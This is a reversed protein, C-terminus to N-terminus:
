VSIPVNVSVVQSHFFQTICEVIRIVDHPQLGVWLPLRLLCKSLNETHVLRGHSRGFKIGAPANHLPIYHFVANIDKRNLHQLLSNRTPGDNLLIYYVHGNQVCGPPVIPRRLYGSSELPELLEHYLEWTKTRSSTIEDAAQLQAWLFAAEIESPLFSSGVDQWTYKDVLGHLFQRRDTGKELLVEARDILELDNIFLAGGEGCIVNKTEHFSLVGLDGMTGLARGQYRAAFGHAADEVVKLGHSRAIKNIHTMECSVGGYHVPVIAKTKKTLAGQILMEDLNLVDPRIDVFVPVAGRLVFANATSVFTFSPMIVEDGEKLDLLLAAMELAATGSHVLMAQKCGTTQEFWTQCKRTFVGNGSLHASDIAQQILAFEKGTVHPKNFPIHM